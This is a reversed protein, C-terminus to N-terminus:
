DQPKTPTEPNPASNDVGLVVLEKMYQAQLSGAIMQSSVQFYSLSKKLFYMGSVYTVEVSVMLVIIMWPNDNGAFIFRDVWKPLSGRHVNALIAALTAESLMLFLFGGAKVLNVAGLIFHEHRTKPKMVVAMAGLVANIYNIRKLKRAQTTRAWFAEVRPTLLNGVIAMPVTLIVGIISAWIAIIAITSM